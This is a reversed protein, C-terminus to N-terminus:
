GLAVRRRWRADLHDERSCCAVDLAAPVLSRQAARWRVPEQGLSRLPCPCPAAPPQSSVPPDTPATTSVVTKMWTSRDIARGTASVPARIPCRRVSDNPRIFLDGDCGDGGALQEVAYVARAGFVSRPALGEDFRNEGDYRDQVEVQERSACVGPDPGAQGRAPRVDARVVSEDSGGRDAEAPPYGGCVHPM